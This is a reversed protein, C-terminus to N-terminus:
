SKRHDIIKIYRTSHNIGLGQRSLKKKDCTKNGRDFNFRLRETFMIIALRVVCESCTNILKVCPFPEKFNLLCKM